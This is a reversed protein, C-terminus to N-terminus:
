SRACMHCSIFSTSIMKQADEGASAETNNNHDLTYEDCQLRCFRIRKHGGGNCVHDIMVTAAGWHTHPLPMCFVFVLGMDRVM